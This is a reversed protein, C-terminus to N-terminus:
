PQIAGCRIALRTLESVNRLDLKKMINTQHVGVTKPSIVLVRAIEAVPEGQALRLFVQFERPTLAKLPDNRQANASILEPVLDAPLFNRGRAVERVAEVMQSAASSKTLYGAAGAEVARTVMLPSDHMSFVLVRAGPDRARIRRLSELGSIGPLSLDLILVDPEVRFYTVYADQGTAAEAQVVIDPTSELLRKYGDRVVPHDDVLLVRIKGPDNM